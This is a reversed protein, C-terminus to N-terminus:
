PTTVGCLELVRAWDVRPAVDHVVEVRQGRLRLKRAKSKALLEARHKDYHRRKALLYRERHDTKWKTNNM